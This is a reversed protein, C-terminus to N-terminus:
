KIDIKQTIKQEGQQANMIEDVLTNANRIGYKSLIEITDQTKQQKSKRERKNKESIKIIQNNHRVQSLNKKELLTQIHEEVKKKNKRLTTLSTNLRKIETNLSQLHSLYSSLSM